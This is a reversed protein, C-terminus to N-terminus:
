TGYRVRQPVVNKPLEGSVSSAAITFFSLSPPATIMPIDFICSSPIPTVPFLGFLHPDYYQKLLFSFHREKNNALRFMVGCVPKM